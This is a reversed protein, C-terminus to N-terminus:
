LDACISSKQSTNIKLAKYFIDCSFWDLYEEYLLSVKCVMIIQDFNKQPQWM